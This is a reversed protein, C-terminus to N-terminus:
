NYEERVDLQGSRFIQGTIAFRLKGPAMNSVRHWVDAEFICWKFPQIITKFLLDTGAQDTYFSTLVDTGGPEIIYLLKSKTSKDRHIAVSNTILQYNLFIEESIHERAWENLIETSAYSSKYGIDSKAVELDNKTFKITDIVQPPINPLNIYKICRVPFM